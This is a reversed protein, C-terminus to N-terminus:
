HKTNQRSKKADEVLQDTGAENPSHGVDKGYGRAEKLDQGRVTENQVPNTSPKDPQSRLPEKETM